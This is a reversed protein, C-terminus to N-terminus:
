QSFLASSVSYKAAPTRIDRSRVQIQGHRKFSERWGERSLFSRRTIRSEFSTSTDVCRTVDYPLGRRICALRSAAPM